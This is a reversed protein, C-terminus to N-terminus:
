KTVHGYIPSAVASASAGPALGYEWFAGDAMKFATKTTIRDITGNQARTKILRFVQINSGRGQTVGIIKPGPIVGTIAGFGTVLDGVFRGGMGILAGGGAFIADDVGFWLGYVDGYIM